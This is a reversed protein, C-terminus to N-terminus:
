HIELLMTLGQHVLLVNKLIPVMLIYMNMKMVLLGNVNQIKEVQTMIKQIINVLDANYVHITKYVVYGTDCMIADCKTSVQASLSDGPANYTGPPCALCEKTNTGNIYAYENEDCTIWECETIQRDALLDGSPRYKGPGCNECEYINNIINVRQNVGCYEPQCKGYKSYFNSDGPTGFINDLNQVPEYTYYEECMGQYVYTDESTDNLRWLKQIYLKVKVLFTHHYYMVTLVVVCIVTEMIM